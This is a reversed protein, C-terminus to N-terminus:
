TQFVEDSRFFFDSDTLTYGGSLIVGADIQRNGDVDVFVRTLTGYNVARVEGPTGTFADSGIFRMQLGNSDTFGFEIHDSGRQFDRISDYNGNGLASHAAAAFSFTDSGDGGNLDDRGAGGDIYDDGVGGSIKDDGADGYLFDRGADGYLTDAGVDGGLLDRGDGGRLLDAGDFGLLVDEGAGGYISDNGGNGVGWDNELGLVIMDNGSGGLVIDRRGGGTNFSMDTTSDAFAHANLRIPFNPSDNPNESVTITFVGNFGYTHFPQAADDVGDGDTDFDLELTEPPTGDGWDVTFGTDEVALLGVGNFGVGVSHFRAQTGM